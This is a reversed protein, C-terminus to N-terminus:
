MEAKRFASMWESNLVKQLRDPRDTIIGDVGMKIFRKMNAIRNVTWVVIQKQKGRLHSVLERDVISAHCVSLRFLSNELNSPIGSRTILGTTVGPNLKRIQRIAEKDFSTVMCEDVFNEEEIIEVVKRPLDIQKPHLKIEVNLKMRGRVTQIAQKLTPIRESKFSRGFWSGADLLAADKWELNWIKGSGNTTRSVSYDHLLVVEGDRTQQADIECFDAQYRIATELAAITNEPALGSAGRHGMALIKSKPNNLRRFGTSLNSVLCFFM